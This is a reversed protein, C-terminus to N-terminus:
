FEKHHDSMFPEHAWYNSLKLDGNLIHSNIQLTERFGSKRSLIKMWCNLLHNNWDLYIYKYKLVWFYVLLFKSSFEM